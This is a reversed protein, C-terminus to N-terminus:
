NPKRGTPCRWPVLLDYDVDDGLREIEGTVWHLYAQPEVGNLRCTVFLSQFVAWNAAAKDSGAFISNKRCLAVPRMCNEVLNNDIELRGDEVFM